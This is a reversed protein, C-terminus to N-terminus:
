PQPQPGGVAQCPQTTITRQIATKVTPDIRRTGRLAKYKESKMTPMIAAIM